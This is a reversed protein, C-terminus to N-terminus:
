VMARRTTPPSTFPDWHRLNYSPWRTEPPYVYISPGPAGPRLLRSDSLTFYLMLGAPSLGSFSQAPSPWCCNYVVSGDEWWLSTVYPSRDCPNLQLFFNNTTLGLPNPALVFQNATFQWDYLLESEWESLLRALYGSAPTIVPGSHEQPIYIRPGPGGSQPLRSDSVTFHPWWDRPIRVQSHSRQRPGAAITFSLGM